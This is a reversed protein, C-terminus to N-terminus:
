VHARGIKKNEKSDFFLWTLVPRLLRTIKEMISTNKIIEMLGCWLCMTGLLTMSLSVVNELSNFISNNLNETNGSYVSYIFSAIVIIPWLLNLM